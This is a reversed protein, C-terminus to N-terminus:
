FQCRASLFGWTSASTGRARAELGPLFVSVSGALSVNDFVPVTASLDLETGMNGSVRGAAGPLFVSGNAAYWAGEPAWARFHHVDLWVHAGWPRAGIAGHGAVVNQWGVYDLYGLHAHGTPFLQHFTHETGDGPAGDGSAGSFEGLVYPSGWVSKFTYTAKLAFAGAVVTEQAASVTGTQFAAESVLALAGLSGFGRAGVTFRNNDKQPGLAATSPDELLGLLYLDAGGKGLRLRSYLGGFYSGSNHFRGGGADAVLWAPPKLMMAFADVTVQPVPAVRVFLGDFARATQSWDLSGILREEGYSLEQRGIRADLWLAPKLDVFGQHLGTSPVATTTSPESGWARVDQLELLAGVREKASARLSLRARQEFGLTHDPSAGDLDLNDRLEGRAFYQAGVAVSYDNWAWRLAGGPLALAASRFLEGSSKRGPGWPGAVVDFGLPVVSGADVVTAPQRIAVVVPAAPATPEAGAGADLEQAQAGFAAVLSALVVVMRNM